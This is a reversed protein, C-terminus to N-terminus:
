IKSHGKNSSYFHWAFIDTSQSPDLREKAKERKLNHLLHEKRYALIKPELGAEESIEQADLMTRSMSTSVNFMRYFYCHLERRHLIEAQLYFFGLLTKKRYCKSPFKGEGSLGQPGFDKKSQSSESVDSTNPRQNKLM